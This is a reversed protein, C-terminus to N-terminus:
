HIVGCLLIWYVAAKKDQCWWRLDQQMRQIKDMRDVQRTAVRTDTDSESIDIWGIWETLKIVRYIRRCQWLM